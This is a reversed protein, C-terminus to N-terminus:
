KHVGNAAPKGNAQMKIPLAQALEDLLQGIRARSVGTEQAAATQSALPNGLYYTIMKSRVDGGQAESLEAQAQKLEAQAQKTEAQMRKVEEKGDKVAEQMKEAQGQVKSLEGQATKVQGQLALYSGQMGARESNRKIQLIFVEFALFMAVPAVMAVARGALTPPAHAINFIISVGTALIALGWLYKVPEELLSARLISLSIVIMFGDIVLPWLWALNFGIGNSLAYAHLAQYSLAFGAAAIFFVLFATLNTLRKM